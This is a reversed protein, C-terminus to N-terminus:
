LSPFPIGAFYGDLYGLRFNKVNRMGEFDCLRRLRLGNKINKTLICVESLRLREGDLLETNHATFVLQAGHKNSERDTFLGVLEVLVLPHIATDLEDVMLVGGMHLTRLALALLAFLRRAGHSEEQLTFRVKSDDAAHQYTYIRWADNDGAAYPVSQGDDEAAARVQEEDVRLLEMDMIDLDLRLMLKRIEVFAKEVPADAEEHYRALQMLAEDPTMTDEAHVDLHIQMYQWAATIDPRMGAHETALKFLLPFLQQGAAGRCGDLIKELEQVPHASTAMGTFRYERTEANLAYVEEGGRELREQLIGEANYALAYRYHMRGCTFGIEFETQTLEPHLRNPMYKLNLLEMGRGAVIDLLTEVAQLITTKGGGNRGYMAFVPVLRTRPTEDQVFAMRALDRYGNPAKGEGYRLDLTTDVICKFNKVHIYELM